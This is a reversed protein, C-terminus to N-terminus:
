TNSSSSMVYVNALTNQIEMAAQLWFQSEMAARQADEMLRQAEKAESEQEEEQQQQVHDEEYVERTRKTM